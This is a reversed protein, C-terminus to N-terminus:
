EKWVKIRNPAEAAARYVAGDAAKFGEPQAAM